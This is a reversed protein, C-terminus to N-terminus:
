SKEEIELTPTAPKSTIYKMLVSKKDLKKFQAESISVKVTLRGCEDDTIGPFMVHLLAVIQHGLTHEDVAEELTVTNKFKAVLKYKDDEDVVKDTNTDAPKYTAIIKLRLALEHTKVDDLDTKSVLWEEIDKINHKV